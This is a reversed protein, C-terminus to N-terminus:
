GRKTLVQVLYSMEGAVEKRNPTGEAVIEEVLTRFRKRLRLVMMAIASESIGTSRCAKKYENPEPPRSLFPKLSEFLNGRQESKMESELREFATELISEAWLRDLEGGTDDTSVEHDSDPSVDGGMDELSIAREGGGRKQRSNKKWNNIVFNSLSRRLFGRFSGGDPTQLAGTIRDGKLLQVFFDQTLDEAEAPTFGRNSLVAFVPKWYRRCIGDVIAEEDRSEGRSFNGIRTWPTKEFQWPNEPSWTGTKASPASSM